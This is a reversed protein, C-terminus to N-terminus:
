QSAQAKTTMQMKMLTRALTCPVMNMCVSISWYIRGMIPVGSGSKPGKAPAIRRTAM